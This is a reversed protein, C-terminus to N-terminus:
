LIASETLVLSSCVTTMQVTIVVYSFNLTKLTKLTLYDKLGKNAVFCDLSYDLPISYGFASTKTLKDSSHTNPISTTFANEFTM